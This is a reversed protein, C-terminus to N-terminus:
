AQASHTSQGIFELVRLATEDPRAAAVHYSDGPLVTLESNPIRSQWERVAEVSQLASEETTVVLTPAQIRPLVDTMDIEGAAATVGICVIPHSAGMLDNWWEIQAEPVTTGLRARQTEAAWGRVGASRIRAPFTGLDVKGGTQHARAPGSVVALSRTREPYDAAFQLAITGGLKAGIIHVAEVGVADLFKVLDRAFGAVSWVEREPEIVTSRGFGRLDPRLVRVQRALHPVWAFWARSSEAVGHVLLVVEPTRWPDVFSEDEYYMSFSPELSVRPM